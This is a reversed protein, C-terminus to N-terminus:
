DRAATVGAPPLLGDVWDLTRQTAGRHASMLQAGAEAMRIRAAPDRLLAAVEVLVADADACQRAAGLALADRAAEAFNFTSPGILVPTGAALPEILNQSGLPALSGGIFAFPALRYFLGLEGITDAIYIATEKKPVPDKSRQQNPRAGCLM